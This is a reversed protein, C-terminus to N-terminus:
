GNAKNPVEIDVGTVVHNSPTLHSGRVYLNTSM